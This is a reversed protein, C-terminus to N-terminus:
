LFENLRQTATYTEGRTNCDARGLHSEKWDSRNGIEKRNHISGPVRQYYCTKISIFQKARLLSPLLKNMGKATSPGLSWPSLATAKLVRRARSKLRDAECKRVSFTEHDSKRIRM